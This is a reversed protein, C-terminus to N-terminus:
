GRHRRPLVVLGVVGFALLIVTSPEPVITGNRIPLIVTGHPEVGVVGGASAIYQFTGSADDSLTIRAVMFDSQDLIETDIAPNWSQDIVNDSFTAPRQFSVDGSFDLKIAAGGLGFDGVTSTTTPGGNALFTDWEVTPDVAFLAANPPTNGGLDTNQYIEGTTLEVIMQSGTYQGAFDIFIDHTWHGPLSEPRYSRIVARQVQGHAMGAFTVFMTLAVVAVLRGRLVHATRTPSYFRHWLKRRNM